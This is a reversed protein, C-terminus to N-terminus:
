GGGRSRAVVLGDALSMKASGPALPQQQSEHPAWGTLTVIEFTATVKGDPRGHREAYLEVARALVARTLPTRSREVMIATEGMRRLDELLALLHPYGVSVRDVDSVPLAFGARQLLRPGDSADLLPAVRFGAGGRLEVEADLLAQRLEILTEGGFLAAIFLGDPKLARRAQVLAGPLDNVAHLALTSVILELSADAFPLREEDAVVRLGPRGALMALSLDTEIVAGVRADGSELAARFAGTRAGLDAALPFERLIPELRLVIDEAARRKLFDAAGFTSAARHLRRRHLERDFVVPASSM